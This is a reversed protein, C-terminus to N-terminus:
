RGDTSVFPAVRVGARVLRERVAGVLRPAHPSDGHV